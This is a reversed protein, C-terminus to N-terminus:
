DLEFPFHHGGEGLAGATLYMKMSPLPVKKERSLDLLCVCFGRGQSSGPPPEPRRSQRCDGRMQGPREGQGHPCACATGSSRISETILEPRAGLVAVSHGRSTEESCKLVDGFFQCGYRVM